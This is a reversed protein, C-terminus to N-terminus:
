KQKQMATILITFAQGETFGARVFSDYIAKFMEADEDYKRHQELKKLEEKLIDIRDIPDDTIKRTLMNNEKEEPIERDWCTRCVHEYDITKGCCVEPKPLYGYRHPCEMCGGTYREHVHEPHEIALKERATM